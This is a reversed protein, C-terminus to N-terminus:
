IILEGEQNKAIEPYSVLPVNGMEKPEGMIDIEPQCKHVPDNGRWCGLSSSEVPSKGSLLLMWISDSGAEFAPIM